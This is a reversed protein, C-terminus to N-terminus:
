VVSKRDGDIALAAMGVVVALTIAILVIAQGRQHGGGNAAVM